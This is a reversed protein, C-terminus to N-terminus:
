SWEGTGELCLMWLHSATAVGSTVEVSGYNSTVTLQSATSLAKAFHTNSSANNILWMNCVTNSNNGIAIMVGRFLGNHSFTRSNSSTVNVWGKLQLNGLLNVRTVIKALLAKVKIM